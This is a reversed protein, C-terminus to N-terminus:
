KGWARMVKRVYWGTEGNQPIQGNVAGPGANYAAVALDVRGMRRLHSALYRAGGDIAAEPEFADKVGLLAATGPMLQAPGMAGAASIRHPKGKSEVVVVARMLGPPLGYKREAAATLEWVEEHGVGLCMPRHKAYQLLAHLKEKLFYPSLPFVWTSGFFAVAGNLLVLPMALAVAARLWVPLKKFRRRLFKKM